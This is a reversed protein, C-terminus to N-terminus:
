LKAGKAAIVKKAAQEDSNLKLAAETKVSQPLNAEKFRNVNFSICGGEIALLVGISACVAGILWFRMTIKTEPWGIAELHHHIPASLFVKKHRIKKSSIQIIDSLVEFVFVFAIIPFIFMTDTLMAVVALSCGLAFAGVDGMFFRAPYINFWLYSVLAGVVTMCFGAVGYKQELIAIIAYAGFAFISLGGALGDLGDSINVANGTAVVVFAFIPVIWAGVTWEGVFPVYISNRGLKSWFYWGLVLGIATILTFKVPARMGAIGKGHSRINIFDDILGIISCGVLAALPLKTYDSRNFILTIITIAIVFIMGAMTPIHRKHKAAHIKEYVKAEGGTMADHRMQKWFKYKYAFYTYIPTIVMALLFSWLGLSFVTALVRHLDSM